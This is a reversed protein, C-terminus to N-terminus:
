LLVSVIAYIIGVVIGASVTGVVLKLFVIAIEEGLDRTHKNM